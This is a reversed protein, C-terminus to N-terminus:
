GNNQEEQAKKQQKLKERAAIQKKRKELNKQLAKGERIIRERCRQSSAKETMINEKQTRSSYQLAM